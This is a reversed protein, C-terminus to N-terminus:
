LLVLCSKIIFKLFFVVILIPLYISGAIHPPLPKGDVLDLDNFGGALYFNPNRNSFYSFLPLGKLERPRDNEVTRPFPSPGKFDWGSCPLPDPAKCM